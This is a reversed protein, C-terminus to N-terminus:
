QVGSGLVVLRLDRMGNQIDWQPAKRSTRRRRTTPPLPTTPTPRPAARPDPPAAGSRGPGRHRDLAIPARSRPPRHDMRPPDVPQVPQPVHGTRTGPRFPAMRERGPGPRPHPQRPQRCPPQGPWTQQDRSPTSTKWQGRLRPPRIDETNLQNAIRVAGFGADNLDTIRAALQPYYSLQEVAGVPRAIETHTRHGGAWTTTIQVRESVGIVDIEVSTIVTRIIRKRHLDTTTPALWLAPIDEALARIRARESDTLGTPTRQQFRDYDERLAALATLAAEWETELQRAVLRNEPEVLHFARRALDATHEAREIRERWLKDAAFREDQLQGAAHLSLEVAAPTLANLVQETLHDDLIDGAMGQCFPAGYSSSQAACNYVHPSPRDIAWTPYRVSARYGCRGCVVLGALLAPGDRPARPADPASRNAAIQTLNRQYDDFTIYAPLRGPLLVEWEELPRTTRGSAPQGPVLRTPDLKRRGYAYAGAYTPNRLINLVADRHARRWILEGKDPGGYQRKPMLIQHDVLYRMVAHATGLRDFLRFVLRITDRVQEDPDLVVEGSPRRVYGAPLPLAMEGRAAKAARATIMRQRILHAEYESMSGKLGLLLRDNHEAPDYVGDADALLTGSLACLELLQQWDRNSRALRSTDIGLVLGVHGMTVETVLRQFGARDAITRGSIGLDEDIIEVRGPPWGLATARSAMAYLLRTSETHELVQHRSSQRVYVLALLERHRPTIKGPLRGFPTMASATM